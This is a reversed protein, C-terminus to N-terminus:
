LVEIKRSLQSFLEYGDWNTAFDLAQGVKVIRDIGKISPSQALKLLSDKEVEWYSLTQLKDDVLAALQEVSDLQYVLFLGSGSHWQLMKENLSSIPLACIRNQVLPKATAGESQLLQSTVLHNNLQNAVMEKSMALTDIQEFVKQQLAADGLWYVVRPSSCAQQAHPETDKWLLRALKAVGEEPDLAGGNILAASYRDAFSIDRCRPKCPLARIANVSDDGGWIVRADAQMSLTASCDSEKAYTVFANRKAIDTHEVQSMVRDLLELLVDKTQSEASAVRVINNNGMLLSCVWSYVFMTDVNAPTFHMVTGLAKKVGDSSKAVITFINASRLWFGLAVLEPLQKALPDKLLCTSLSQIFSLINPDFVSLPSQSFIQEPNELTKPALVKLGNMTRSWEYDLAMM